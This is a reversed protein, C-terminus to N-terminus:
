GVFSPIIDVLKAERVLVKLPEDLVTWEVGHGKFIDPQNPM